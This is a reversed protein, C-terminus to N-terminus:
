ASRDLRQAIQEVSIGDTRRRIEAYAVAVSCAFVIAILPWLLVLLWEVAWIVVREHCSEDFSCILDVMGGAGLLLGWAIFLTLWIDSSAKFSRWLSNAWGPREIMAIPIAITFLTEFILGPVVYALELLGGTLGLMITLPLVPLAM